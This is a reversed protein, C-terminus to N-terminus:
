LGMKGVYQGYSMGAKRAAIAVDVISNKKEPKVRRRQEQAKKETREAERERKKWSKENQKSAKDSCKDSCYKRRNTGDLSKGCILCKREGM